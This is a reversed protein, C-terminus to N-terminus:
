SPNDKKLESLAYNAIAMSLRVKEIESLQEWPTKELSKITSEVGQNKQSRMAYVLPRAFVQLDEEQWGTLLPQVSQILQELPNLNVSSLEEVRRAIAELWDSPVLEGFRQSLSQKVRSETVSSWCQELSAFFDEAKVKMEQSDLSETWPFQQEKEQFFVEAETGYPNWPYVVEDQLLMESLELRYRNLDDDSNQSNIPTNTIM